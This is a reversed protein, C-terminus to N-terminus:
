TQKGYIQYCRRNRMKKAEFCVETWNRICDVKIRDKQEYLYIPLERNMNQVDLSTNNNKQTTKKKKKKESDATAM